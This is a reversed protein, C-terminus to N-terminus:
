KSDTLKRISTVFYKKGETVAQFEIKDQAQLGQLLAPDKVYFVMTMPPMDLSKIEGHKLTMRQNQVDVRRIEASAWEATATSAIATTAIATFIKLLPHM